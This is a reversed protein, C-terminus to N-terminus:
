IVSLLTDLDTTRVMQELTTFPNLCTSHDDSTHSQFGRLFAADDNDSGSNSDTDADDDGDNDLYDDDHHDDNDPDDDDNDDTPFNSPLNNKKLEQKIPMEETMIEIPLSEDIDM